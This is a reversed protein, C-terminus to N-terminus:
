RLSAAVASSTTPASGGGASPATHLTKAAYYVGFSGDSFRSAVGIHTFAAMVPTSGPGCVRDERDVLAIAGVEDRLRESTLGELYFLEDMLDPDV